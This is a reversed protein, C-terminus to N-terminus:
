CFFCWLNQVGDLTSYHCEPIESIIALFSGWDSPFNMASHVHQSLFPVFERAPTWPSLFVESSSPHHWNSCINKGCCFDQMLLQVEFVNGASLRGCWATASSFDQSSTSLFFDKEPTPSDIAARAWSLRHKWKNTFFLECLSSISKTDSKGEPVKPLLNESQLLIM